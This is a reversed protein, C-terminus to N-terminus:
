KVLIDINTLNDNPVTIIQSLEIVYLIKVASTQSCKSLILHDDTDTM